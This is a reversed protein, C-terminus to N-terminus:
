HRHRRRAWDRTIRWSASQGRSALLPHLTGAGICYVIRGLILSRARFHTAVAKARAMAAKSGSKANAAPPAVAEAVEGNEPSAVKRSPCITPVTPVVTAIAASAIPPMDAADAFAILGRRGPAPTSNPHSKPGVDDGFQKRCHHSPFRWLSRPTGRIDSGRHGTRKQVASTNKSHIKATARPKKSSKSIGQKTVASIM